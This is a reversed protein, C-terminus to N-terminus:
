TVFSTSLSPDLGELKARIIMMLRSHTCFHTERLYTSDTSKLLPSHHHKKVLDSMVFSIELVSILAQGIHTNHRHKKNTENHSENNENSKM